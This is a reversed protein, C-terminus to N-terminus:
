LLINGMLISFDSKPKQLAPAQGQRIKKLFVCGNKQFSELIALEEKLYRFFINWVLYNNLYKTAVGKLNRMFEKLGSHYSNIHQIHYIGENSKGNKLQVLELNNKQAFLLNKKLKTILFMIYIKKQLKELILPKQLQMEAKCHPCTRNDCNRENEIFDSFTDKSSSLSELVFKLMKSKDDDSLRKYIDITEKLTAM